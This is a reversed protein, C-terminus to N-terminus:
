GSFLASYPSYMKDPSSILVRSVVSCVCPPKFLMLDCSALIRVFRGPDCKAINGVPAFSMRDSPDLGWGMRCCRLSDCARRHGCPLSRLMGITSSSLTAVMCSSLESSQSSVCKPATDYLFLSVEVFFCLVTFAMSPSRNTLMSLWSRQAGISVIGDNVTHTKPSAAATESSRCGETQCDYYM